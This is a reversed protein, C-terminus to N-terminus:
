DPLRFEIPIITESEVAKGDLMAPEYRWLSIADMAIRALTADGSVRALMRPVGDKGIVAQIKVTGQLHLARAETSYRPTVREIVVAPDYGPLSTHPRVAPPLEAESRFHDPTLVSDFEGSKFDASASLPWNRHLPFERVRATPQLPNSGAEAAPVALGDASALADGMSALITRVTVVGAFFLVCGLVFGVALRSPDAPQALPRAPRALRAAGIAARTSPRANRSQTKRARERSASEESLFSELKMEASRFEYARQLALRLQPMNVPAALKEYAGRQMVERVFEADGDCLAVIPPHSVSKRIEDIFSLSDRPDGQVGAARLDVLLVDCRNQFDPHGGQFEYAGRTLFGVLLDKHVEEILAADRTVVCVRIMAEDAATEELKKRVSFWSAM